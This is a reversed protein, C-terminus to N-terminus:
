WRDALPRGPTLENLKYTSRAMLWRLNVIVQGVPNASRPIDCPLLATLSLTLDYCGSLPSDSMATATRNM